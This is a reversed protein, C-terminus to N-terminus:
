SHGSHRRIMHHRGTHQGTEERDERSAPRLIGDRLVQRRRNDDFLWSHVGRVLIQYRLDFRRLGFGHGTGAQHAGCPARVDFQEIKNSPHEVAPPYVTGGPPSGEYRFWGAGRVSSSLM